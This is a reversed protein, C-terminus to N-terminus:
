SPAFFRNRARLIDSREFELERRDDKSALGTAGTSRALVHKAADYEATTVTRSAPLPRQGHRGRLLRAEVGGAAESPSSRVMRSRRKGDAAATGGGGRSHLSTDFPRKELLDDHDYEVEFMRRDEWVIGRGHKLSRRFAGQYVDGNAYRYIGFARCGDKWEGEFSDGGDGEQFMGWGHMKGNAWSGEYYSGNAFRYTGLGHKVATQPERSEANRPAYIVEGVYEDGNEYVDRVAASSTM